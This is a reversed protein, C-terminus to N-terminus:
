YSAPSCSDPLVGFGQTIALITADGGYSYDADKGCACGSCECSWMSEVEECSSAQESQVIYDCSMGYCTAPCAEDDVVAEGWADCLDCSDQCWCNTEGTNYYYRHFETTTRSGLSSKQFWSLVTMLHTANSLRRAEILYSVFELGNLM